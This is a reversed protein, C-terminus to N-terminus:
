DRRPRTRRVNADPAESAPTIAARAEEATKLIVGDVKAADEKEEAPKERYANERRTSLLNAEPDSLWRMARDFGILTGGRSVWETIKEKAPGLEAGYGGSDPLILVDFQDLGKEDLHQVRVPTAPYGFRRELVYRTAGASLPNVPTDWAIAIKPPKIESVMRGGFSPGDEVWSTPAAYVVAGTTRALEGLTARVTAPNDAARIILAGRGFRRGSLTFAEKSTKVVIGARLANALFRTADPGDWDVVYAVANAPGLLAGPEAGAFEKFADGGIRGPEGLGVDCTDVDVNHAQPLSWATVDYLEDSLDKERLREQEALFDEEMPSDADMLTRILRKAPQALPIIHAGRKYAVACATFDDTATKVEVGQAVLQAALADASKRDETAPLIYTRVNEKRGEDVASQQYEWFDRLLKERNAAGAEATSLSTIFQQRVTDRYDFESGDTRRAKLGRASAQEYTMAAAGYFAPWTDGYGPYLGDFIDRTFYDIGFRDFWRANNRGVIEINGLQTGTLHPNFPDTAPAFYYTTDTGMEHADVFILPRWERLYKIRGVTEPQSLTFWDRNM